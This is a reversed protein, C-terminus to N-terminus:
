LYQCMGCELVLKSNEAPPLSYKHFIPLEYKDMLVREYDIQTSFNNPYRQEAERTARDQASVIEGCARSASTPLPPSATTDRVVSQHLYRPEGSFMYIEYWDGSIDSLEFVDGSRAEAVVTANTNSNLFINADEIVLVYPALEPVSAEETSTSAETELKTDSQTDGCALLTLALIITSANRLM